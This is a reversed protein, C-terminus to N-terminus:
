AEEENSERELAALEDMLASAGILVFNVGSDRQGTSEAKAAARERVREVFAHIIDLAIVQKLSVLNCKHHLLATRIAIRVNNEWDGDAFHPNVACPLWELMEDITPEPM